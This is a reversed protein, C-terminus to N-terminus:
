SHQSHCCCYITVWLEGTVAMTTRPLMSLMGRGWIPCFALPSAWCPPGSPQSSFLLWAPTIKHMFSPGYRVPQGSLLQGVALHHFKWSSNYLLHVFGDVIVDRLSPIPQYELQGMGERQEGGGGWLGGM